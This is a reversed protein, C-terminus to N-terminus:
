AIVQASSICLIQINNLSTGMNRHDGAKKITDCYYLPPKATSPTKRMFRAQLSCTGPSHGSVFHEEQVTPSREQLRAVTIFREPYQELSLQARVSTEAHAKLCGTRGM